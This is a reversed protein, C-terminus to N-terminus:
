LSVLDSMMKMLEVEPTERKSSVDGWSSGNSREFVESGSPLFSERLVM